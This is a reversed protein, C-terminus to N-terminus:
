LLEEDCRIAVCVPGPVSFAEGLAAPLETASAVSLGRAGCLEASSAFDPNHLSTQWVDFSGARQEKTIKGLAGNDLLVHRIPIGYKV